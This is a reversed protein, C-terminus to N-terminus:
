GLGFMYDFFHSVLDKIHQSGRELNVCYLFIVLFLSSFFTVYFWSNKKNEITKSEYNKQTEEMLNANIELENSDMFNKVVKHIEDEDDSLGLLKAYSSLYWRLYLPSSVNSYDGKEIEVIRQKTMLLQKAVDSIQLGQAERALRLKEGLM